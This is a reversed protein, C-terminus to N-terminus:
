ESDPLWGEMKQKNMKVGGLKALNDPLELDDAEALARDLTENLYNFYFHWTDFPVGFYEPMARLVDKKYSELMALYGKFQAAEEKTFEGDKIAEDFWTIVKDLFKDMEEFAKRASTVSGVPPKELKGKTDIAGEDGSLSLVLLIMFVLAVVLTSMKRKGPM